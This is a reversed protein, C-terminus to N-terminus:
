VARASRPFRDTSELIVLLLLRAARKGGRIDMEAANRSTNGSM